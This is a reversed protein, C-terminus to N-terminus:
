FSRQGNKETLQALLEEDVDKFQDLDASVGRLFKNRVLREAERGYPGTDFVGRANEIGKETVDCSDIRGVIWSGDHGSGTQPQWLLPIPLDRVTLADKLLIRGDGSEMATPLLLDIVFSAGENVEEVNEPVFGDGADVAAQAASAALAELKNEFQTM